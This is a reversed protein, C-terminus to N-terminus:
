LLNWIGCEKAPKRKDKNSDIGRLESNLMGFESNFFRGAPRKKHSFHNKSDVLFFAIQGICDGSQKEVIAWRYADEKEYAAIYRAHLGSVAEPTEYVPESYLSQVQADSAWNRFVADRDSENFRRLILRQTELPKIGCHIM